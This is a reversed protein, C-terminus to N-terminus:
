RSIDTLEIPSDTIPNLRLQCILTIIYVLGIAALAMLLIWYIPVHFAGKKSKVKSFQSQYSENIGIQSQSSHNQQVCMVPFMLAKDQTNKCGGAIDDFYVARYLGFTRRETNAVPLFNNFLGVDKQGKIPQLIDLIVNM